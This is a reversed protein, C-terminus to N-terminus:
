SSNQRSARALKLSTKFPNCTSPLARLTLMVFEKDEIDTGATALVDSNQRSSLANCGRLKCIKIGTM